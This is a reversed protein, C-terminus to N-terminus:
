LHITVRLLAFPREPVLTLQSKGCPRAKCADLADDAFGVPAAPFITAQNTSCSSWLAAISM